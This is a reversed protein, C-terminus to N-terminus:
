LDTWETVIWQLIGMVNRLERAAVLETLHANVFLEIM